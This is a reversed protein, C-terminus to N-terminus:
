QFFEDVEGVFCSVKMESTQGFVMRCGAASLYLSERARTVAVYFLRREEEVESVTVCKANPFIGDELAPVFVVPFELGKAAHVTMVKVTDHAVTHDQEERFM